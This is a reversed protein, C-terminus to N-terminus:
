QNTIIVEDGLTVSSAFIEVLLNESLFAIKFHKVSRSGGFHREWALAAESAPYEILAGMSPAQVNSSYNVNFLPIGPFATRSFACVMDFRLERYCTAQLGEEADYEMKLTLGVGRLELIVANEGYPPLWEYPDLISIGAGAEM